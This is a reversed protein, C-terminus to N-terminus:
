SERNNLLDQLTKALTIEYLWTGNSQYTQTFEMLYFYDDSYIVQYEKPMCDIYEKMSNNIILRIKDGVDIDNPLNEITTKYTILRRSNKLKRISKNYLTQAAKIRDANSLTKGDEQIPQIDNSSFTGEYIDGDEQQIGLEDMVAYENLTNPAYQPFDYGTGTSQTNIVNGTIIVPFGEKQLSPNNYVDRLTVSTAGGDSKDSIAVALNIINSSDNEISISSLTAMVRHNGTICDDPFGSDSVVFNKKEGFRSIELVRDTNRPTRFFLDETMSLIKKLGDLKNERSFEYDFTEESSTDYNFQIEWRQRRYRFDDQTLLASVSANKKAVNTPINETEWEGLVEDNELSLKEDPKDITVNTIRIREFFNADIVEVEVRNAFFKYYKAPISLQVTSIENLSHTISLELIETGQALIKNNRIIRFYM